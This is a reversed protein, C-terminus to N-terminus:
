MLGALIGAVESETASRAYSRERKEIWEILRSRRVRIRGGLEFAPLESAVDELDDVSVRLFDAVEELTMIEPAGGGRVERSLVRRTELVAGARPELRPLMRLRADVSEIAKLRRRCHECSPLHREIERAREPAPDGVAFAALEEYTVNCDM